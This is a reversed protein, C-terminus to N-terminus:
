NHITILTGPQTSIGGYGSAIAADGNPANPPITVNFQFEGPAVLGAFQVQANRGAITVVPLPSLTGSQTSSGAVVPVNTPGFGNAYIAIVEGPKAPSSAGPFLTAPGVLSGDLHVAAVYPGGNFM